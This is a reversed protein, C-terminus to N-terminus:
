APNVPDEAEAGIIGTEVPFGGSPHGEAVNCKRNCQGLDDPMRQRV